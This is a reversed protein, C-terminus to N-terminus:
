YTEGQLTFITVVLSKEYNNIVFIRLLCRGLGRGQWNSILQRDPEM